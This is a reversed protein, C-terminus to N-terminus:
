ENRRSTGISIVEEITLLLGKNEKLMNDIFTIASSRDPFSRAFLIGRFSSDKFNSMGISAYGNNLLNKIFYRYVVM